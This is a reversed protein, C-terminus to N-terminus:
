DVVYVQESNLLNYLADDPFIANQVMKLIKRPTRLADKAASESTISIDFNANIEDFFEAICRDDLGGNDCFDYDLSYLVTDDRCVRALIELVLQDDM